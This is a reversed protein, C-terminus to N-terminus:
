TIKKQIRQNSSVRSWQRGTLYWHLFFTEKVIKLYTIIGHHFVPEAPYLQCDLDLGEAMMRCRALHYRNTILAPHQCHIESLLGRAQQLNELTHRSRDEIVIRAPDVGLGQLHLAGAGAESLPGPSTYGGLLILKGEGTTYLCAARTLRARYDSTVKGGHLKRAMVLACIVPELPAVTYRAERWVMRGVWLATLGLSGVMVLMSLVLMSWGDGCISAIREKSMYPGYTARFLGPLCLGGSILRWAVMRTIRVIDLVSSFHSPRAGDAYVAAIPIAYSRIGRRAGAILIESEFVFSSQRTRRLNLGQMLVAPYLRFGSQSDEIPYGAAWSIWFNAVKNAYYRKPPFARKDALRSGIIIHDPHQEWAKLFRPIDEPRHQGDGDLSIIGEAGRALAEELGRWLTAAKGMNVENRLLVVDLGSLEEATGDSSGDDVVIVLAGYQLCKEAISRITRAENYAPIVIGFPKNM